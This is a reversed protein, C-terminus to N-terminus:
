KQRGNGPATRGIPVGLESFKKMVRQDTFVSVALQEPDATKHRLLGLRIGFKFPIKISFKRYGIRRQKPELIPEHNRILQTLLPAIAMGFDLYPNSLGGDAWNVVKAVREDVAALDGLAPALKEGTMILAAADPHTSPNVTLAVVIDTILSGAKREYKLANPSRVSKRMFSPDVDIGVEPTMWGLPDYETDEDPQGRFENQGEPVPEPELANFDIASTM